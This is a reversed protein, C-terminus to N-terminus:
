RRRLADYPDPSEGLTDAARTVDVWPKPPRTTRM